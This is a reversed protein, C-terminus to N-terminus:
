KPLLRRGLQNAYKPFVDVSNTQPERQGTPGGGRRGVWNMRRCIGVVALAPEAGHVGGVQGDAAMQWRRELERGERRRNEPVPAADGAGHCAAAGGRRPVLV